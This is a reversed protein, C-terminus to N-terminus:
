GALGAVAAAEVQAFREQVLALWAPDAPAFADRLQQKIPGAEPGDLAGYAHLWADARLANSVTVIDVTGWEIAVGTVETGPLWAEIADLVDGRVDASVSNGTAPVTYGDAGYWAALRAVGLGDPHSAMVEGHGFPGLGTHLDLVGVREAGALHERVIAGLTRQSWVARDGGYFIGAPHRYQGVSVAAQLGEFGHAAAFELLVAATAEQTADDWREPVLADALTDYGPNAPPPRTFDVCNRNLDVNDENVRRIWAFGYPNIAHVVVAALEDPWAGASGEALWGEQCASGAFGEVGHTGSIVLLRAPADDRGLRAVDTALPEGDPGLGPHAYRTLRAGAATAADVFRARAERYDAALGRRDTM